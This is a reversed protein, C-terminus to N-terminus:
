VKKEELPADAPRFTVISTDQAHDDPPEPAPALRKRVADPDDRWAGSLVSTTGYLWRKFSGFPPREESRTVHRMSQMQGDLRGLTDQANREMEQLRNSIIGIDGSSEV